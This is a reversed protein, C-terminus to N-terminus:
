AIWRRAHLLRGAGRKAVRNGSQRVGMGGKMQRECCEIRREFVLKERGNLLPNGARKAGGIRVGTIFFRRSWVAAAIEIPM